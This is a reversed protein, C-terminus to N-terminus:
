INESVPLIKKPYLFDWLNTGLSNVATLIIWIITLQKEAIQDGFVMMTDNQFNNKTLSM